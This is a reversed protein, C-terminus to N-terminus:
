SRDKNFIKKAFDAVDEAVIHRTEEHSVVLHHGAEHNKIRLLRISIDQASVSNMIYSANHINCIEDKHDQIYLLPATIKKLGMRVFKLNYMFDALQETYIVGEHGTWPAIKKAAESRKAQYEVRKYKAILPIFFLRWDPTYYPFLSCLNMPSAIAAVGAVKEIQALQLALVGGLSFGCIIIDKGRALLNAYEKHVHESWQWFRSAGFDEITKDHGPLTVLKVEIGEDQVAKAIYQMEEVTGGLGHVILMANNMTKWKNDRNKGNM